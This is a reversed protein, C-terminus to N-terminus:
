FCEKINLEKDGQGRGRKVVKNNEIESGTKLSNILLTKDIETIKFIRADKSDIMMKKRHTGPCIPIELEVL